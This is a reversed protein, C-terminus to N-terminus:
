ARGGLADVKANLEFDASRRGRLTFAELDARTFYLKGGNPRYCPLRGRMVLKYCYSPKMGLYAAAERMTLPAGEPKANDSM